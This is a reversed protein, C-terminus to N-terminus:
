ACNAPTVSAYKAGANQSPSVTWEGNSYVASWDTDKVKKLYKSLSASPISASGSTGNDVDYAELGTEITDKESKCATKQANSRMAGIGVIAAGALVALIAIVVLLEILTFGSQGAMAKRKEIMNM